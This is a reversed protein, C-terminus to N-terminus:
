LQLQFSSQLWRRRASGRICDDPVATSESRTPADDVEEVEQEAVQALRGGEAVQDEEVEVLHAGAQADEDDGEDAQAEEECDEAGYRDIAAEPVLEGLDHGLKARIKAPGLRHALHHEGDLVAVHLQLDHSLQHRQCSAQLQLAPREWGAHQAASAAEKGRMIELCLNALAQEDLHECHGQGEDTDHDGVAGLTAVHDEVAQNADQQVQRIEQHGEPVDM